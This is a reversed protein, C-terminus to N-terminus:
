TATVHDGIWSNLVPGLLSCYRWFVVVASRHAADHGGEVECNNKDNLNNNNMNYIKQLQTIIVARKVSNIKIKHENQNFGFNICESGRSILVAIRGFNTRNRADGVWGGVSLTEAVTPSLRHRDAVYLSICRSAYYLSYVSKQLLLCM